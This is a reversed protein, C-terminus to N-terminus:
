RSCITAKQDKLHWGEKGDSFIAYATGCGIRSGRNPKNPVICLGISKSKSKFWHTAYHEPIALKQKNQLLTQQAQPIETLDWSKASFGPCHFTPDSKALQSQKSICSTLLVSLLLVIFRM